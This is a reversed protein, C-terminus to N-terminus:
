FGDLTLILCIGLYAFNTLNGIGIGGVWLRSNGSGGRETNREGDSWGLDKWKCTRTLTGETGDM